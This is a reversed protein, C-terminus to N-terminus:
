SSSVESTKKSGKKGDQNLGQLAAIKDRLVAALEYDERAVAASMDGELRKVVDEPTGRASTSKEKKVGASKELEQQVLGLLSQPTQGAEKMSCTLASTLKLHEAQACARCLKKRSVKFKGTVVSFHIESDATKCTDCKTKKEKKVKKSRGQTIWSVIRKIIWWIFQRNM